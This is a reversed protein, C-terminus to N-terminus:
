HLTWVDITDAAHRASVVTSADPSLKFRGPGAGTRIVDTLHVVRGPQSIDWTTAKESGIVTVLTHGDASFAVATGAAVGGTFGGKITAADLTSSLTPRARDRINWLQVQGDQRVVVLTNGDPSFTTGEAELIDVPLTAVVTPHAPDAITWLALDASHSSTALTRGDPSFTINMFSQKPVAVPHAPFATRQVPRYPNSIDYLIVTDHYGMALLRRDPSLAVDQAGGDEALRAALIPQSRDSLDWLQVHKGLAAILSGDPSVAVFNGADVTSLCIPNGPDNIDWLRVTSAGSSTVVVRGDASFALDHAGTVGFETEEHFTVAYTGLLLVVAGATVGIAKLGTQIRQPLRSHHNPDLRAAVVNVALDALTRISVRHQDLVDLFEEAYRQRWQRPYWRVLHRALSALVPRNM